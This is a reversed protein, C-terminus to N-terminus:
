GNTADGSDGIHEIEYTAFQDSGAKRVRLRLGKLTDRALRLDELVVAVSTAAVYWIFHDGTELSEVEVAALYKRNAFRVFPDCLIEVSLWEQGVRLNRPGSTEPM